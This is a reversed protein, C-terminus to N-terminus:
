IYDHRAVSPSKTAMKRVSFKGGIVYPVGDIDGVPLAEAININHRGSGFIAGSTLILARPGHWNATELTVAEAISQHLPFRLRFPAHGERNCPQSPQILRLQFRNRLTVDDTMIRVREWLSLAHRLGGCLHMGRGVFDGPEDLCGLCGIDVQLGKAMIHPPEHLKWLALLDRLFEKALCHRQRLIVGHPRMVTFRQAPEELLIHRVM